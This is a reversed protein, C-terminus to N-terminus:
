EAAQEIRTYSPQPPDFARDHRISPVARRAEEVKALDLEAVIVGPEEGAEALIEGWPSIIISHGYTKRGHDHTGCQAAAVVFCGTEIARARLLVHWHARGTPVTFAAPVTIVQAGAKALARYLYAFRMDYCITMGLGGWPLDAVVAQKGPRYTASERYSEGGALDVDFMHIKDYTAAIGGAPDMLYSRNALTSDDLKVALSGVLVWAGTESALASYFPIAPHDAEAPTAALTNQRGHIIAGVVEPTTILDAGQDRASRILDGTPRLNAEIDPGSTVQVCAAKFSTPVTM